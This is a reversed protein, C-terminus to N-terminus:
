VGLYFVYEFRRAGKANDLTNVFYTLSLAEGNLTAVPIPALFGEGLTNSHNFLTLHLEGQKTEGVYRSEGEDNAFRFVFTLDSIRIKIPLDGELHVVGSTLVRRSGVWSQTQVNGALNM